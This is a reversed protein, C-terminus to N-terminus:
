SKSYSDDYPNKNKKFNLRIPIGDISFHKRLSSMLYQRYTLDISYSGNVVAIFTPPIVKVQTIYKIKVVKGNCLPPKHYEVALKLWKNLVSTSIRMTLCKYLEISTEIIKNCNINKLASVEIVPVKFNLKNYNCIDKLLESRDKKAIMDWKNLAIIIAKGKQIALEAISLDQQEIGYVSDIMLIVIDSRNISEITKHVSTVEISETVKAKKRMGATDILTFKQGRYTYEVDISDRTTGPEPSVIMRNEALLRNIFTSKGANPRGVISLKINHLDLTNLDYEKIFPLLAEYLDVLGLNHEASIYVPGIFDFYGLYDISYCRKQSECKNAILIIPKKVKKRLYKAFEINKDDHEIRADVVFFIIDSEEISLKVQDLVLSSLKITNDVGGTDVIKFKLGCLDADGERRDRTLNPINSVIASKQSTLRNFITSKGVNPLGVIAIKLM